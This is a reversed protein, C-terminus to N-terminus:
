GRSAFWADVASTSGAGQEPGPRTQLHIKAGEITVGYVPLGLEAAVRVAREIEAKTAKKTYPGRKRKAPAEIPQGHIHHINSM